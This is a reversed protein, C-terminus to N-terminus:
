RAKCIQLYKMDKPCSKSKWKMWIKPFQKSPQAPHFSRHYYVCRWRLPFGDKEVALEMWIGPPVLLEKQDKQKLNPLSEKPSGTCSVGSECSEVTKGFRRLISKWNLQCNADDFKTAELLSKTCSFVDEFTNDFVDEKPKDVASVFDIEKSAM